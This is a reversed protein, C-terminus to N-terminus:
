RTFQIILNLEVAANLPLAPAGLATRTHKGREGFIDILFDSAGNIVKPHDYFEPGSNVFGNLTIIQSVRELSGLEARIVALRGLVCLRAAQQAAAIDLDIGVKGTILQGGDLPLGGSLYLLNGSSLAQVYSGAAAPVDPLQFGAAEIKQLIQDSM